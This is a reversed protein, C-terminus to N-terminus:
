LQLLQQQKNSILLECDFLHPLYKRRYTVKLRISSELPDITVSCPEQIGLLEALKFPFIAVSLDRRLIEYEKDIVEVQISVRFQVVMVEQLDKKGTVIGKQSTCGSLTWILFEIWILKQWHSDFSCHTLQYVLFNLKM